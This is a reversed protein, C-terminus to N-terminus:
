IEQQIPYPNHKPISKNWLYLGFFANGLFFIYQFTILYLGANFYVYISVVNVGIWVLWNEMKKNDLLFQALISAVFIASDLTAMSGHFLLNFNYVGGYAAIAIFVYTALWLLSDNAAWTVPRTVTDARWRFWGYLMVPFLYFQLAMSALLGATWFMYAYLGISIAGIWYNWRSQLVCLFTCSYSTFVAAAEIPSITTVWGLAYGVGYSIATLVLAVVLSINFKQFSTKETM